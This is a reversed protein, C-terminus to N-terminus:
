INNISNLENKERIYITKNCITQYYQKTQISGIFLQTKILWKLKAYRNLLM